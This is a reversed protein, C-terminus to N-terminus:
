GADLADDAVTLTTVPTPRRRATQGSVSLAGPLQKLPVAPSYLFGQAEHCHMARLLAAQQQTEVGEAVATAGVARALGVVSSCIAEDDRTLGLGAVFARDIKLVSIPYRRLYLLSSYGTGFDDICLRVGLASLEELVLAATEEDAILSSETIEMVLRHPDLRSSSLASRVHEVLDPGTLQWASVNVAVDLGAAAGTFAAADACAQQLVWRGLPRILGGREAAAIFETPAVLGQQPHQWRALAEVAVPRNRTLDVVPQYHLVLDGQLMAVRLDAEVGIHERPVQALSSSFMRVQARGKRKADYMAADAAIILDEPTQNPQGVVVGTSASLTVEQGSVDFPAAFADMLRGALLDAEERNGLDRWVVLFEDGAYRALTDGARVAWALRRAVKVLLADGASHGLSDNVRKFHDLDVFGVGVLAGRRDSDVLAQALRDDLLTRNPLGTLADHLAEHALAQQVEHLATVDVHNFVAGHEGLLHVPRIRVSFWRRERPSHCPYEHEFRDLDHSLVGRLGAAVTAADRADASSAVEDGPPVLRDCVQLYNSGAGVEDPNADNESAFSRWADNVALIEGNRDVACTSAEIANLMAQALQAPRM